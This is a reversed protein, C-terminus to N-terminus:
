RNRDDGRPNKGPFGTVDILASRSPGQWRRIVSFTGDTELVVAAVEEVASIGQGRLASRIEAETVREGVMTDHQFVGEYLLLAPTSKVMQQFRDSRVSLWTVILQLLCLLSLAVAGQALSVDRALIVNALASGLAVTVIFDFANWKSLTRKGTLRLILVILIYALVGTILTRGLIEVGDLLM